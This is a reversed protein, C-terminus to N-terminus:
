KFYRAVVKPNQFYNTIASNESDNNIMAFTQKALSELTCTSLLNIRMNM